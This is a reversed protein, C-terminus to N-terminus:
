TSTYSPLAQTPHHWYPDGASSGLMLFRAVYAFPAEPDHLGIRLLCHISGRLPTGVKVRTGLLQV